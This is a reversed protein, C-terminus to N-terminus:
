ATYRLLFEDFEEEEFEEDRVELIVVFDIVAVVLVIWTFNLFVDLHSNMGHLLFGATSVIIWSAFMFMM